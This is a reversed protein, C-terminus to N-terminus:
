PCGPSPGGVFLYNILYVVDASSVVGDCNADGSEKPNPQPGDAFLYNILYVVDASNIMGDHNPDGCMWGTQSFKLILFSSYDATYVYDGNVSLGYPSPAYYWGALIPNLPDSIDYIRVTGGDGVYVYKGV